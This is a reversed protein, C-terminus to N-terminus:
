PSVYYVDVHPFPSSGPVTYSITATYVGTPVTCDFTSIGNDPVTISTVGCGSLTIGSQKNTLYATWSTAQSSAKCLYFRFSAHGVHTPNLMHSSCGGNGYHPMADNWASAPSATLFLGVVILTAVLFYSGAKM